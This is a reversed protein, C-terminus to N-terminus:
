LEQRYVLDHNMLSKGFMAHSIVDIIFGFFLFIVVVFVRNFINRLANLDLTDRENYQEYM